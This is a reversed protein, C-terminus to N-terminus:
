GRPSLMRVVRLGSGGATMTGVAGEVVRLCEAASLRRARDGDWCLRIMQKVESPTDAPLRDIPPREGKCVLMGLQVPNTVHEFPRAVSLVEHAIVAFSYMDTTRSARAMEGTDVDPVLTEPACYLPTGRLSNTGHLSSRDLTEDVTQRLDSMGFDAIIISPPLKGDVLINAPKLDGHVVGAAHLEALGRVIQALIRLKSFTDSLLSSYDVALAAPRAASYLLMELSGGEELHMVIGIAEEGAHLKFKATIEPPLLGDAFGYVHLILDRLVPSGRRGIQVIREAEQLARGREAAYDRGLAAAVSATLVKVAVRRSGTTKPHHPLWTAKFVQGFAGKGIADRADFQLQAWPVTPVMAAAVLKGKDGILGALADGTSQVQGADWLPYWLKSGMYMRLWGQVSDPKSVTTFEEQMMVYVMNLKGDKELSRAYEAEQKCNPRDPYPRSVCVVVTHSMSVAEAMKEDTAGAMKGCVSSGDEDRWVDFGHTERLYSTLAKVHEPKSEKNWCYSMM